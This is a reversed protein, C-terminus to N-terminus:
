VDRGNAASTLQFGTGATDIIIPSYCGGGCYWTSGGCTPGLPPSCSLNPPPVPCGASGDACQWKGSSCVVSGAPGNCETQCTIGPSGTCTVYLPDAVTACTDSIAQSSSYIVTGTPSTATFIGDSFTETLTCDCTLGCRAAGFGAEGHCTSGTYTGM